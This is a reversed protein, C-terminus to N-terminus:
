KRGPLRRPPRPMTPKSVSGALPRRLPSLLIERRRSVEETTPVSHRKRQRPIDDAAAKFMSSTLNPPFPEETGPGVAVPAGASPLAGMDKRGYDMPDAAATTRSDSCDQLALLEIVFGLPRPEDVGQRGPIRAISTITGTKLM